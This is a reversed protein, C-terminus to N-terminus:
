NKIGIKMAVDHLVVKKNIEHMQGIRLKNELLTGIENIVELYMKMEEKEFFVGVNINEEKEQILTLVRKVM